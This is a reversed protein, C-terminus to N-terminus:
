PVQYLSYTLGAEEGLQGAAGHDCGAGHEHDRGCPM